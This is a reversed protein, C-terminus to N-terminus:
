GACRCLSGSGRRNSRFLPHLGGRRLPTRPLPTKHLPVHLALAMCLLARTKNRVLTAKPLRHERDRRVSTHPACQEEPAM